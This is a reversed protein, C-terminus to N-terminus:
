VVEVTNQVFGVGEMTIRVVDGAQLLADAVGTFGGSYQIVLDPPSDHAVTSAVIEEPTRKFLAPASDKAVVEDGRYHVLDLQISMPDAISEPTAICPGVSACGKFVKSPVAWKSSLSALNGAVENGTTYGALKGKYIVLVVEGEAITRPTDARIGVTDFPGVLRHNTGKYITTSIEPTNYVRADEDSEALKEPTLIMNGFGGAWMEDPELPKIIRADGSGSLSWDILQDLKFEKGDGQKLLREAIADVGMGTIHGADLLDRYEGVLDNISTLSTLVGDSAEVCLHADGFREMVRYYRM